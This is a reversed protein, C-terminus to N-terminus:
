EKGERARTSDTAIAVICGEVSATIESALACRRIPRPSDGYETRRLYLGRHWDESEATDHMAKALETATYMESM